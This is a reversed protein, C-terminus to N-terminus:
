VKLASFNRNKSVNSSLALSRTCIIIAPLWFLPQFWLIDVAFIIPVALVGVLMEYKRLKLCQQAIVLLFCFFLFLLPISFFSLQSIFAYLGMNNEALGPLNRFTSGGYGTGLPYSDLYTIPVSLSRGSSEVSAQSGGGKVGVEVIKNIVMAYNDRKVLMWGSLIFLTIIALLPVKRSQAARALFLLFFGSLYVVLFFLGSASFNLAFVLFFLFLTLRKWLLMRGEAPVVLLPFYAVMLKALHGREVSVAGFSVGQSFGANVFTGFPITGSWYIACQVLYITCIAFCSIQLVKYLKELRGIDVELWSRLSVSNIALILIKGLVAIRLWESGTATQILQSHLSVLLLLHLLAFIFFCFLVADVISIRFRVRSDLLFLAAGAIGFLEACSIGSICFAPNNFVSTSFYIISCCHALSARRFSMVWCCFLILFCLGLMLHFSEMDQFYGGGFFTFLSDFPYRKEM